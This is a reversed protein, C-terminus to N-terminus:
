SRGPGGASPKTSTIELAGGHLVFHRVADADVTVGPRGAGQFAETRLQFRAPDAGQM